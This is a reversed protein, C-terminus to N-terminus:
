SPSVVTEGSITPRTARTSKGRAESDRDFSVARARNGNGDNRDAPPRTVAPPKDAAKTASQAATSSATRSGALLGKAIPDSTTPMDLTGSGDFPAVVSAASSGSRALSGAAALRDGTSRRM